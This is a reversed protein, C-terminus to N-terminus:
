RLDWEPTDPIPTPAPCPVLDGAPAMVSARCSELGGGRDGAATVLQLPHSCPLFGEESGTQAQTCACSCQVGGGARPEQGAEQPM